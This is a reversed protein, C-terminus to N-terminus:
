QSLVSIRSVRKSVASPTTASISKMGGRPLAESTTPQHAADAAPDLEPHLQHEAEAEAGIDGPDPARPRRRQQRNGSRVHRHQSRRDLGAALVQRGDGVELHGFAFGNGEHEGVPRRM